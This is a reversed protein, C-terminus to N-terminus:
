KGARRGTISEYILHTPISLSLKAEINADAVTEFNGQYRIGVDTTLYNTFFFRVGFVTMWVRDVKSNIDEVEEKFDATYGFEGMIKAKSAAWIEVGGFPVVPSKPSFDAIDSFQDAKHEREQAKSFSVVQEYEGRTTKLQASHFDGGAHLRFAGLRRNEWGLFEKSAVIYLDALQKTYITNGKVDEGGFTRRFAVSINPLFKGADPIKGAPLYFKIGAIPLNQLESEEGEVRSLISITGVEFQAIGGLGLAAEAMFNFEKTGFAAGGTTGIDYAKVTDAIPVNFLRSPELLEIPAEEEQAFVSSTATM